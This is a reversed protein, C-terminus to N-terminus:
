LGHPWFICVYILILYNPQGGATLLAKKLKLILNCFIHVGLARLSRYAVCVRLGHWSAVLKTM